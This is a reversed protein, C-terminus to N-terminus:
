ARGGDLGEGVEGRELRAADDAPHQELVLGARDREEGEGLALPEALVGGGEVREDDDGVALGLDRDVALAVRDARALREPQRGADGM